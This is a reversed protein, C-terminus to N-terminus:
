HLYWNQSDRLDFLAKYFSATLKDHRRHTQISLLNSQFKTCVCKTFHFRKYIYWKFFINIEYLECFNNTVAWLFLVVKGEFGAIFIKVSNDRGSIFFNNITIKLLISNLYFIFIFWLCCILLDFVEVFNVLAIQDFKTLIYLGFKLTLICM